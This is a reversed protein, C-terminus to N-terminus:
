RAISRIKDITQPSLSQLKSYLSDPGDGLNEIIKRMIDDDKTWDKDIEDIFKNIEALSISQPDKTHSKIMAMLMKEAVEPKDAMQDGDTHRALISLKKDSLETKAVVDFVVDKGLSNILDSLKSEDIFDNTIVGKLLNVKDSKSMNEVNVNDGKASNGSLLELLEEKEGRHGKKAVLDTLLRTEESNLQSLVRSSISGDVVARFMTLATDKESYISYKLGNVFSQENPKYEKLTKPHDPKGEEKIQEPVFSKIKQSDKGLEKDINSNASLRDYMSKAIALNFKDNSEALMRMTRIQDEHEMKGLLGDLEGTSAKSQMIGYLSDKNKANLFGKGLADEIGSVATEKDKIANERKGSEYASIKVGLKSRFPGDFPNVEKGGDLYVFSNDKMLEQAKTYDSKTWNPKDILGQTTKITSMAKSVFNNAQDTPAAGTLIAKIKQIQPDNALEPSLSILREVEHKGTTFKSMDGTKLAENVTASIVGNIKSFLEEKPTLNKNAMAAEFAKKIEPKEKLETPLSEYDRKIILQSKQFDAPPLKTAGLKNAEAIFDTAIKPKLEDLKKQALQVQEKIKAEDQPKDKILAPANDILGKYDNYKKTNSSTTSADTPFPIPDPSPTVPTPTPTDETKVGLKTMSSEFAQKVEPKSKINEPLSDFKAKLERGVTEAGTAPKQIDNAIKTFSASIKNELDGIKKTLEEKKDSSVVSEMEKLNSLALLDKQLESQHAPETKSQSPFKIKGPSVFEFSGKATGAKVDISQGESIEGFSSIFSSEQSDITNDSAETNTGEVKTSKATDELKKIDKKDIKGDKAVDDWVRQLNAPINVM